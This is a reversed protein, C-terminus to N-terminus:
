HSGPLPDWAQARHLPLQETRQQQEARRFSPGALAGHFESRTGLPQRVPGLAQAAMLSVRSQGLEIGESDAVCGAGNSIHLGSVFSVESRNGSCPYTWFCNKAVSRQVEQFGDLLSAHLKAMAPRLICKHLFPATPVEQQM